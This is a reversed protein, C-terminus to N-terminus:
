KEWTDIHTLSGTNKERGREVENKENEKRKTEDFKSATGTQRKQNEECKTANQEFNYNKGKKKTKSKTLRLRPKTGRM